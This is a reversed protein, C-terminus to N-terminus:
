LDMPVIRTESRVTFIDVRFNFASALEFGNFAGLADRCSFEDAAHKLSISFSFIHINICSPTISLKQAAGVGIAM